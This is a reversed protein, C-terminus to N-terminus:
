NSIKRGNLVLGQPYFKRSELVMSGPTLSYMGMHLFVAADAGCKEWDVSHELSM